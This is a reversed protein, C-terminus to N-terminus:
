YFRVIVLLRIIPLCYFISILIIKLLLRFKPPSLGQYQKEDSMESITKISPRIDDFCNSGFVLFICTSPTQKDEDHINISNHTAATFNYM